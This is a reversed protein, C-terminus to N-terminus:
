RAICAPSSRMPRRRLRGFKRYCVTRRRPTRRARQRSVSPARCPLQQAKQMTASAPNRILQRSLKDSDTAILKARSVTENVELSGRVEKPDKGPAAVFTRVTQFKRDGAKTKFTRTEHVKFSLRGGTTKVGSVTVSVSPLPDVVAVTTKGDKTETKLLCLPSDGLSGGSTLLWNGDPIPGKEDAPAVTATFLVAVALTLRLM